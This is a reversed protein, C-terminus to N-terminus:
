GSKLCGAKPRCNPKERRLLLADPSRWLCFGGSVGASIVFVKDTTKVHSIAGDHAWRMDSMVWVQNAFLCWAWIHLVDCRPQKRGGGKCRAANGGLPGGRGRGKHSREGRSRLWKK